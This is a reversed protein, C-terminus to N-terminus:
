SPAAEQCRGSEMPSTVRRLVARCLPYKQVTAPIVGPVHFGAWSVHASSLAPPSASLDSISTSPFLQMDQLLWLSLMGMFCKVLLLLCVLFGMILLSCWNQAEIISAGFAYLLVELSVNNFGAIQLTSHFCIYLPSSLPLRLFTITLCFLFAFAASTTCDTGCGM